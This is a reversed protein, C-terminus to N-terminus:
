KLLVIRRTREGVCYFLFLIANDTLRYITAFICLIFYFFRYKHRLLIVDSIINNWIYTILSLCTIKGSLPILESQVVIKLKSAYDESGILRGSTVYSVPKRCLSFQGSCYHQLREVLDFSHEFGYTFLPEVELLTSSSSRLQEQFNWLVINVIFVDYIFEKLIEFLEGDNSM